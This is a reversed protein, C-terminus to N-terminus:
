FQNVSFGTVNAEVDISAKTGRTEISKYSINSASSVKEVTEFSVERVKRHIM